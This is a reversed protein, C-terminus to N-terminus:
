ALERALLDYDEEGLEDFLEDVDDLSAYSASTTKSRVVNSYVSKYDVGDGVAKIRVDYQANRNLGTLTYSLNTGVNVTTWTSDSSLKYTLSYRSANASATWNATLTTGTVGVVSLIPAALTQQPMDRQTACYASNLYSVGDGLALVKWVYTASNDLGTLEYSTTSASLIIPSSFSADSQNKWIFRYGTANPVADWAATITTAATIRTSTSVM